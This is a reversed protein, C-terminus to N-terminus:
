APAGVTGSPGTHLQWRPPWVVLFAVDAPLRHAVGGRDVWRGDALRLLASHVHGVPPRTFRAGTAASHHPVVASGAPLTDAEAASVVWQGTDTFTSPLNSM